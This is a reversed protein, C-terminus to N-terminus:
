ISFTGTLTDCMNLVRLQYEYLNNIKNSDLFSWPQSDNPKGKALWYLHNALSYRQIQIINDLRLGSQNALEKLTEQNYLFLHCSWYTSDIFPKNEYLSILANDANPTEIFIKGNETLLSKLKILIAKPDPLHEIVHFLTIFDFKMSDIESIDEYLSIDHKDLKKSLQEKVRIELEIGVTQNTYASAKFLFGCNGAGFDLLNKGKLVSKLREIRKIEDVRTTEQWKTLNLSTKNKHIKSEKYFNETIHEFSSLFVLGCDNCKLVVIDNRDRVKDAIQTFSKSKCLYCSNQKMFM